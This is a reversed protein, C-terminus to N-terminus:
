AATNEDWDIGFRKGTTSLLAKSSNSERGNDTPASSDGWWGLRFRKGKVIVLPKRKIKLEHDRSDNPAQSTDEGQILRSGAFLAMSSAIPYPNRPLVRMDVCWWAIGGFLVMTGLFAQLIIKSTKHLKLRSVTVTISGRIVGDSPIPPTITGNGISSRWERDIIISMFGQYLRNLASILANINKSGVLNKRNPANPEHILYEFMVDFLEDDASGWSDPLGIGQLSGTVWGSLSTSNSKADLINQTAASNLHADRALDPMFSDSSTRAYTTNVEVWQARLTCVLATIDSYLQLGVQEYTGFILGLAPCNGLPPGFWGDYLLDYTQGVWWKDTTDDLPNFSNSFNFASNPDTLSSSRCGAPLSVRTLVEIGGPASSERVTVNSSPLAYCELIPRIAPVSIRYQSTNGNLTVGLGTISPQPNGIKPLVVNDWILMSEKPGGHEIDYLIIMTDDSVTRNGTFDANWDSQSEATVDRSIQIATNVWLGSTVVTLLSGVTSATLSLAAGFHRHYIAKYLAIPLTDGAINFFITREPTAAGAALASFPTMTAIGFDLANFLTSIALVVSTSGYRISYAAISSDSYVNVFREDHESLYWLIELAAISILPLTLTLAIAHSRSSCPMWKRKKKTGSKKSKKKSTLKASRWKRLLWSPPKSITERQIAAAVNIRLMGAQDRDATFNYGALEKRIERLSIASSEGLLMSLAPSRSM